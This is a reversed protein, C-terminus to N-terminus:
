NNKILYNVRQQFGAIEQKITKQKLQKEAENFIQQEM